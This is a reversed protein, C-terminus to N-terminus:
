VCSSVEMSVAGWEVAWNVSKLSPKKGGKMVVFAPFKTPFSLFDLVKACTETAIPSSDSSMAPKRTCITIDERCMQLAQDGDLGRIENLHFKMEKPSYSAAVAAPPRTSTYSSGLRPHCVGDLRHTLM